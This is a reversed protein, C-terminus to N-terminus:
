DAAGSFMILSHLWLTEGEPLKFDANQPPSVPATNRTGPEQRRYTRTIREDEQLNVKPLELTLVLRLPQPGEEHRFPSHLQLVQSTVGGVHDAYGREVRGPVPRVARRGPSAGLLCTGCM